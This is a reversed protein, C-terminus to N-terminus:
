GQQLPVKRGVARIVPYWLAVGKRQIEDKAKQFIEEYEEAKARDEGENHVSELFVACFERHVMLYEQTWFRLKDLKCQPTLSKVNKLDKSLFITDLKDMWSSLPQGILKWVDFHFRPVFESEYSPDPSICVANFGDFDTWQLYGGPKLLRLIKDLVLSIHHDKVFSFVVQMNIIDFSKELDGAIVGDFVNFYRSQISKPLWASPPLQAPNIDLAFLKTTPHCKPALDLLWIGTGCGIDAIRLDPSDYPISPDLLQDDFLDKILYHQLNLEEAAAESSVSSSLAEDSHQGREREGLLPLRTLIAKRSAIADM